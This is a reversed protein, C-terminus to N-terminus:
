NARDGRGQRDIQNRGAKLGGAPAPIKGAIALLDGSQKFLHSALSLAHPVESVVIDDCVLDVQRASSHSDSCVWARIAACDALNRQPLRGLHRHLNCPGRDGAEFKAYDRRGHNM